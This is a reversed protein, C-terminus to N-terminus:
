DPEGDDAQVEDPLVARLAETAAVVRAYPEAVAAYEAPLPADGRHLPVVQNALDTLDARDFGDRELRAAEAAVSRYDSVRLAYGPHRMLDTDAALGRALARLADDLEILQRSRAAHDVPPAPADDDQSQPSAEGSEGTSRRGDRWRDLLGM